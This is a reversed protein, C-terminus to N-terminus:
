HVQVQMRAKITDLPHFFTRSVIGAMGSAILIDKTISYQPVSEHVKTTAM